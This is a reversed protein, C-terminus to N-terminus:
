PKLASPSAVTFAIVEGDTGFYGGWGISMAAIQKIDLTEGGTKAAGFRSFREWPVQSVRWGAHNLLRGVTAIYQGGDATTIICYLTAPSAQGEGVGTEIRLADTGSLDVPQAYKFQAFQFTDVGTKTIRGEFRWAARGDPLSASQVPKAAVFEGGGATPVVEPLAVPKGLVLLGADPTLRARPAAAAYRLVVGRYAPLSLQVTPGAVATRQGTVPDCLEGAGSASVTVQAQCASASDNIVFYVEHGDVARHTTRLPALRPLAVDRAVLLDLATGLLSESGAPLWVGRAGGAGAIISPQDGTGFAKAAFAQAAASPFQDSQNLPRRSLGVLAGGAQWFQELRQWAAAPLTEVAPLVLVSWALSGHVLRNGEVRSDVIAKADLICADRGTKFVTDVATNYAQEIEVSAADPSGVGKAPETHPWLSNIPYVVAVDAVQHGGRLATCVRGTYLNLHEMDAQDLGAFSYYSTFTNIGGVAQRNITGLIEDATVTIPPRKDGEPRYRQSHDSTESMTLTRGELEAVSSLLRAASWPVQSPISTLMDISPADLGRACAMFDGYLQVHGRFSEEMLLHGGAPVGLERCRKQIQGFYNESVLDAVTQWFDYRVKAGPAGGDVALAALSPALDYGRRRRFEPALNDSWPLVAYPMARLFCSMLSPEDTFTAKFVKSLDGLERAYSDHTLEIYRKTPEPLLLNTYTQHVFVNLSAHTGEYIKDRTVLAVQWSGAAPPTWKLKGDAIAASVDVGQALDTGPYARALVLRGPPVALEVPGTATVKAVLLGEAEWEPHGKLVQMGATGSPYGMEDYLWMTMNLRKAEAVVRRLQDWHPKSHLYQENWPGVNTAFGGFGLRRLEAIQDLEPQAGLPWSHVIKLIRTSGPPDAFRQEFPRDEAPLPTVMLKEEPLLSLRPGDIGGPGGGDTVEIAVVNEAGFRLLDAPLAYRRASQVGVTAGVQRGNVFTRDQDDVGGLILVVPKGRWAEPVTVRRRYWAIGDYDSWPMTGKPTPPQGPRPDTIGQPEWSGPVKLERWGSDDFGPTAWGQAVGIGEPDTLFRWAGNLNGVTAPLEQAALPVVLLVSALVTVFKM